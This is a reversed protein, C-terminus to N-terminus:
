IHSCLIYRSAYRVFQIWFLWLLLYKSVSPTSTIHLKHLFIKFMFFNQHISSLFLRMACFFFMITCANTLSSKRIWFGFVILVHFRQFNKSLFHVFTKRSRSMSSKRLIARVKVLLWRSSRPHKHEATVAVVFSLPLVAMGYQWAPRSSAAYHAYGGCSISSSDINGALKRVPPRRRKPKELEL